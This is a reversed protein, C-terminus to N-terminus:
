SDLVPASHRDKWQSTVRWFLSSCSAWEREWLGRAACRRRPHKKVTHLCSLPHPCRNWEQRSSSTDSLPTPEEPFDEGPGAADMQGDLLSRGGDLEAGKLSTVRHQMRLDHLCSIPGRMKGPFNQAVKNTHLLPHHTVDLPFPSSPRARTNGFRLLRGHRHARLVHPSCPDGAQSLLGAAGPVGSTSSCAQHTSQKFHIRQFDFYFDKISFIKDSNEM